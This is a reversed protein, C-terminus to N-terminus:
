RQSDADSNAGKLKTVLTSAATGFPTGPNASCFDDLWAGLGHYVIYTTVKSRKAASSVNKLLFGQLWDMYIVRREPLAKTAIFSGCSLTEIKAADPAQIAAILFTLQLM